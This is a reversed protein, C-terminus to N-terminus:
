LSYYAELMESISYINSPQIRMQYKSSCIKCYLFPDTWLNLKFFVDALIETALVSTTIVIM